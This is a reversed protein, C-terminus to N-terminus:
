SYLLTPPVTAQHNTSCTEPDLPRPKLGPQPCQKTDKPLAKSECHREGGLHPFSYQRFLHQPYGQLPNANWEPPLQFVGALKMSCFSAPILEPRIPWMAQICFKGKVQLDVGRKVQKACKTKM